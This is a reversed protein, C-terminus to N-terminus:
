IQQLGPMICASIYSADFALEIKFQGRNRNLSSPKTLQFVNNHYMVNISIPVYCMVCLTHDYRLRTINRNRDIHRNSHTFLLKLPLCLTFKKGGGTWCFRDNRRSRDVWSVLSGMQSESWHNKVLVQLFQLIMAVCLYLSM